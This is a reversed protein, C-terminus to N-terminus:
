IRYRDAQYRGRSEVEELRGLIQKTGKGKGYGSMFFGFLGKDNLSRKMLLLDIAKEEISNSVQSLGFDIVWVRAKGVMINATTFDGHSIGARHLAALHRGAQVLSKKTIADRLLKGNIREMYLKFGSVLLVTPVPVGAAGARYLMRAENETRSRRIRTDLEKERYAKPERHKVIADLGLVNASFLRAEAGEAIMAM